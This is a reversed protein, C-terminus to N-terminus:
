HKRALLDDDAVDRPDAVDLRHEGHEFPEADRHLPQAIVLDAQAGGVDVRVRLDVAAAGLRDAGREQQGPRQERAEAARRHRRGPAVHDAAPAEVRVEVAEGREARAEPVLAVDDDVRGDAAQAGGLDEHVLRGDHRRLVDQHGGRQGGALRHDAVRGALRVDLVERAHEHLHAGVDAADARVHQRDGPLLLEAAAACSMPGSWM